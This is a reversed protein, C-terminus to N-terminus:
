EKSHGKKLHQPGQNNLPGRRQQPGKKTNHSRTIQPGEEIIHGKKTNHGRTIQSGEEINLGRNLTISV